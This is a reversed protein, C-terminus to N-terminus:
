LISIKCCRMIECEDLPKGRETHIACGTPELRGM